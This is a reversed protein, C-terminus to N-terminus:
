SERRKSPPRGAHRGNNPPLICQNYDEDLEEGGVVLGTKRDVIGMDHTKMLHVPQKNIVKQTAIKYIPHVYDPQGKNDCGSCSLMSPLADAVAQLHLDIAGVEYSSSPQQNVRCQVQMTGADDENTAEEDGADESAVSIEDDELMEITDGGLRLRSASLEGGECGLSRCNHKVGVQNNGGEEGVEVGDDCKRGSRAIQKGESCDRVRGECVAGREQARRVPSSNGIVYMYGHEDNGKFIVKIDSDGEAAVLMVRDYKLCYWLKEELMDSWTVGEGNEDIGGGGNRGEGGYM